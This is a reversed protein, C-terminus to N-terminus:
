GPSTEEAPETDTTPPTPPRIRVPNLRDAPVPVSMVRTQPEVFVALAVMGGYGLGALVALVFLFRLLSPM